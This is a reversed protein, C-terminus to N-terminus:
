DTGVKAGQDGIKINEDSKVSVIGVVEKSKSNDTPSEIQSPKDKDM